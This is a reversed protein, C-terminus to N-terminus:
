FNLKAIVQLIKKFCHPKKDAQQVATLGVLVLHILGAKPVIFTVVM